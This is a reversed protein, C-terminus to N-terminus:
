IFFYKVCEFFKNVSFICLNSIQIPTINFPNNIIFIFLHLHRTSRATVLLCVASHVIRCHTWLQIIQRSMVCVDKDGYHSVDACCPGTIIISSPNDNTFVGVWIYSIWQLRAQRGSLNGKKNEIIFYQSFWREEPQITKKEWLTSIQLLLSTISPPPHVTYVRGRWWLQRWWTEMWRWRYKYWFSAPHRIRAFGM